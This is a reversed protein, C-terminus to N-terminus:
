PALKLPIAGRKVIIFEHEGPVHELTHSLYFEDVEGENLVAAYDVIDARVDADGALNVTRREGGRGLGGLDFRTM